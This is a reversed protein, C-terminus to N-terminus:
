LRLMLVSLTQTKGVNPCRALFPIRAKFSIQPELTVLGTEFRKFPGYMRRRGQVVRKEKAAWRVSLGWKEGGEEM